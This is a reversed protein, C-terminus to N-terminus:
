TIYGSLMEKSRRMRRKTENGDLACIENFSQKSNFCHYRRGIEAANVKDSKGYSALENEVRFVSAQGDIKVYINEFPSTVNNYGHSLTSETSLYKCLTHM